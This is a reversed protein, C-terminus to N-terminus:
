IMKLFDAESLVTINLKAAKAVKSPGSKEGAVFFTTKSSLSSKVEGGLDEIKRKLEERSFASFVGSIVFSKGSFTDASERKEAEAFQLGAARLRQLIEIQDLDRFYTYLSEAIRTGIDPIAVLEEIEAERLADINGLHRTLKKAVTAGVFRIGLAFLVKSFPMEKSKEIGHLLNRVSLDAFRELGILQDYKLDYLDAVNRVLGADVLQSM